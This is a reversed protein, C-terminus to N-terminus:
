PAVNKEFITIFRRQALPVIKTLFIEIGQEITLYIKGGMVINMLKIELFYEAVNYIINRKDVHKV